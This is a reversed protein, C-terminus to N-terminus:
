RGGGIMSFYFDELTKKDNVTELIRIGAENLVEIAKDLDSVHIRVTDAGVSLESEGLVKVIKGNNLIAFKHATNQLESLIHSSIIITMGYEKNLMQVLNRIDAIGQPDLGNTPEDLILIEPNGLMANAIGLRQKMGLSYGKVKTKVGDLGVLKLVRDVEAKRHKIGKLRAYYNLNTRANAYPFYNNGILFGIKHRGQALTDGEDGIEMYGSSFDSLGLITKFITSKGSGNKGILGYIEGKEIDLNVGTLVERKGYHKHVDKLSIIYDSQKKVANIKKKKAM